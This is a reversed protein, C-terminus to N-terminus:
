SIRLSETKEVRWVGNRNVVLYREEIVWGAHPHDGVVGSRSATVWYAGNEEMAESLVVHVNRPSHDDRLCGPPCYSAAIGKEHLHPLLREVLARSPFGEPDARGPGIFMEPGGGIKMLVAVYVDDPADTSQGWAIGQLAITGVVALLVPIRKNM